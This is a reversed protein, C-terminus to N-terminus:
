REDSGLPMVGNGRVGPEPSRNRNTEVFESLLEEDASDLTLLRGWSAATVAAENAPRPSVIVDNSFEDFVAQLTAIDDATAVAPSYTFWILGHELSHVANGDSVQEEFFGPELWVSFHPGGVPPQGVPIEMEALTEVHTARGIAIEEGLLPDDSQEFAGGAVNFLVAVILVVIATAIAM